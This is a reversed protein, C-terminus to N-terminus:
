FCLTPSRFPSSSNFPHEQAGLSQQNPCLRETTGLRVESEVKESEAEMVSDSLGVRGPKVESEVKESGAKMVLHNNVAVLESLPFDVDVLPTSQFETSNDSHSRFRYESISCTWESTSIAMLLSSNFADMM